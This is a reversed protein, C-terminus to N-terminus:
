PHTPVDKLIIKVVLRSNRYRQKGCLSGPQKLAALVESEHELLCFSFETVKNFCLNLNALMVLKLMGAGPLETPM